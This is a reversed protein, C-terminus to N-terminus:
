DNWIYNFKPEIVIKSKHKEFETRISFYADILNSLQKKKEEESDSRCFIENVNDELFKKVLDEVRYNYADIFFDQTGFVLDDKSNYTIEDDQQTSEIILKKLNCVEL